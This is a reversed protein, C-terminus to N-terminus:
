PMARWGDHSAAFPLCRERFGMEDLAIDENTPVDLLDRAQPEDSVLARLLFRGRYVAASERGSSGQRVLAFLSVLEEQDRNEVWLWIVAGV